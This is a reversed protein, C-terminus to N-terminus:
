IKLTQMLSVINKGVSARYRLASLLQMHNVVINSYWNNDKRVIDGISVQITGASGRCVFEHVNRYTIPKNDVCAPYNGEYNRKVKMYLDCVTHKPVYNVQVSKPYMINYIGGNYKKLCQPHGKNYTYRRIKLGISEYDKGKNHATKIIAQKNDTEIVKKTNIEIAKLAQYLSSTGEELAKSISEVNSPFGKKISTFRSITKADCLSLPLQTDISNPYDANFPFASKKIFIMSNDDGVSPSKYWSITGDVKAAVYRTYYVNKYEKETEKKVIKIKAGAAMIDKPKLVCFYDITPYIAAM